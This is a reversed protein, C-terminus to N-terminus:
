SKITLFHLPNAAGSGANCASRETDAGWLQQLCNSVPAKKKSVFSDPLIRVQM